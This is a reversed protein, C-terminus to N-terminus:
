SVGRRFKRRSGIKEADNKVKRDYLTWREM